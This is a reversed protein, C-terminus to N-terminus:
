RKLKRTASAASKNGADDNVSATLKVTLKRAKALLKRGDKTLSIQASRTGDTVTAVGKAITKKSAVATLKFRAPENSSLSIKLAKRKLVKSIRSDTIAVTGNPPTTDPAPRAQPTGNATVHLTGQMFPHVSCYFSYDGTTLFEVGKVPASKGGEITESKFIPKGASDKTDATVDHLAQDDNKFTVTDGQDMTVDKTAYTLPAPGAMITHDAAVAPVALLGAMALMAGAVLRRM